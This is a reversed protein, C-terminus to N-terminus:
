AWSKPCVFPQKPVRPPPLLSPLPRPPPVRRSVPQRRRLSPSPPPPLRLPPTPPPSPTSPTASLSCPAARRPPREAAVQTDKGVVLSCTPVRASRQKGVMQVRWRPLYPPPRGVWFPSPRGPRRRSPQCCCRVTSTTGRPLYTAGTCGLITGCVHACRVPVTVCVCVLALLCVCACLLVCGPEPRAAPFCVCLGCVQGRRYMCGALLFVRM